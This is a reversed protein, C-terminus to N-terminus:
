RVSDAIMDTSDAKEALLAAAIPSKKVTWDGFKLDDIFSVTTIILLALALLLWLRTYRYKKM